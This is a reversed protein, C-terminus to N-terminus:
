NNAEYCELDIKESEIKLQTGEMGGLDENWKGFNLIYDGAAVKSLNLRFAGESDVKAHGKNFAAQKAKSITQLNKTRTSRREQKTSVPPATMLQSYASFPEVFVVWNDYSKYGKFCGNIIVKSIIKPKQPSSENEKVPDGAIASCSVCLILTIFIKRM